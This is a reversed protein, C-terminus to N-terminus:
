RAAAGRKPQESASVESGPTPFKGRNEFGAIEMKTPDGGPTDFFKEEKFRKFIAFHLDSKVRFMTEVDGVYARLEFNLASASMGTFLVQPPPMALVLQNAKAVAWLVERVKDPDASGPITLAIVIRGTRDNRVLNTVVGTVLSSNPIIVQARDFTEIETARVNIRRVFGQDGGVVIWDGVRVAREWLLILGSVFNNVISQLGFGIGVSLAGAVLALKEFNLGLYGLALGAAVLFNFYGLSTRISNRLGLDFNLHPFLKSDVWRLVAHFVGLVLVFLGVAIFISFPSITVDGVKFGFFAAGFDIPVDSRQLGWPVLVLGAAVVFLVLRILGAFLVGTLELSNRNFGISTILRHGLRTTPALGASIAEEVLVILMFLVCAIVCVWFFQDLLFSGFAAYGILVSVSIAFTVVWSAVHLFDLWSERAVQPGLNDDTDVIGGFRWLEVGLMIAGIMAVLGRMTVAVPLSAGVIDNLVEFLRIVSVICALSIASRVIGEAARDNLKPLRWNPRTPAFLGRAIGAAAAIRVVAEGSAQMFPQLRANTLDFYQFVLGIITILAAAPVAIVLTIRWAGLIKLFHSPEPVTASRALVRLALWSLPWYLLLILALSGWFVPLRQGGLRSNVGGIWESFVAKVGAIDGPAERWVDAWLAPNSISAARAFLSRKFLARRQATIKAGTQDAQVALLRARKLLEDTDNYLKQQDAREATVAPSEPPAADDPKPGLQDLRAKIGDLRPTLRDLADSVAASVPDIRQRLDQLDADTLDHRELSAEIQKLSASLKDLSPGILAQEPPPVPRPPAAPSAPQSTQGNAPPQGQAPAQGQAPPQKQAPGQKAPAEGRAPAIALLAVLGILRALNKLM